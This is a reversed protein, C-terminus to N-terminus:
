TQTSPQQSSGLILGTTNFLVRDWLHSLNYKGINQNLTPNSKHGREWVHVCVVTTYYEEQWNVLITTADSYSFGHFINPNGM